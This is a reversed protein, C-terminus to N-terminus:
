SGIHFQPAIWPHKWDLPECIGLVARFEDAYATAIQEDEIVTVNELSLTASYTFNFSGTWVVKPFFHDWVSYAEGDGEEMSAHDGLVLFKHHMRPWSPAKQSNHAGACAVSVSLNDGSAFMVDPRLSHVPLPKLKRYAQHLPQWDTGGLDPRLFDEKAVVLSVGDLRALADLIPLSTLWAVCGVAARHPGNILEILRAEHDRFIPRIRAMKSPLSFDVKSLKEVPADKNPGYADLPSAVPQVGYTAYDDDTPYGIYQEWASRFPDHPKCTM